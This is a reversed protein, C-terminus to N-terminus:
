DADDDAGDAMAAAGLLAEDGVAGGAGGAGGGM